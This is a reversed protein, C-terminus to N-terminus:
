VTKWQKECNEGNDGIISNEINKVTKDISKMPKWFKKGNEFM